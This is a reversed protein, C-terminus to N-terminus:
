VVAGQPGRHGDRLRGDTPRHHGPRQRHQHRRRQPAPGQRHLQHHRRRPEQRRVLRAASRQRRRVPERRRRRRHSLRALGGPRRRHHQAQQRRHQHHARDAGVDGPADRDQRRPLLSVRRRRRRDRPRREGAARTIVPPLRLAVEVHDFIKGLGAYSGADVTFTQDMIGVGWLATLVQNMANDALAARFPKSTDLPPATATDVLFEIGNDGPMFVKSDLAVDLGTADVHLATPTLTVSLTQGDVDIRQEGGILKSLLGPVQGDVLDAIIGSLATGIPTGILTDIGDPLVSTDLKFGDFSSTSQSVDVKVAGTEDLSVALIGGVHFAAATVKVDATGKDCALDYAVHLDVEIDDIEGNFNLGDNDPVVSVTVKGKTVKTIDVRAGLCDIPIDVIPNLAAVRAGIDMDTLAKSAVGGVLALSKGDVHAYFAHSVTTDIPALTGGLVARTDSQTNGAKDTAVTHILTLGPNAAVEAVFDGNPGVVVPYDNVLVRQLGSDPDAAVGRVEITTAGAAISGRLPTRVDLTPAIADRPPTDQDTLGRTSCAALLCLFVFRKM